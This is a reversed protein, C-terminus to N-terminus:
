NKKRKKKKGGMEQADRVVYPAVETEAQIADTLGPGSLFKGFNQKRMPKALLQKLEVRARKAEISRQRDKPIVEEEDEIDLDIDADRSMSQFWTKEKNAILKANECAYIKCALLVRAHAATILRGDMNMVNFSKKGPVLAQCIHYHNAEEAPSVLSFSTGFATQGDVGRATRGARHIFTDVGRATDYHVVSAVSPIDLGRAAVDTAVVIARSNVERLSELAAFRSKQAMQAHIPRVPLGLLKLTESVRKVAAISNCFVLAPGSSGEKTTTLYAYCQTDKHRQTCKAEFLSLGPPLRSSSNKKAINSNDGQASQVDVNSGVKAVKNASTLDVIKTQGTAGAMQLIEAIIGEISSSSKQHHISNKKKKGAKM